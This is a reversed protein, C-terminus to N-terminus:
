DEVVRFASYVYPYDPRFWNRFSRRLFIADTRPSAGKLVYHRGDFFNASYGPYFPFPEFGPFPAFEDRCWEWGNGAMQSVGWANLPEATHVPEPDWRRFHFNGSTEHPDSDGWPYASETETAGSYGYAARHYQAESPLKLGKWGAYAAAQQYTAYIPWDLPLPIEDFMGRYLWAGNRAIWFPPAPGGDQVFRLYEGNTVKFQAIRFADVEVRHEQYENDWGFGGDRPRGLTAAGASVEMMPNRPTEGATEYQLDPPRRKRSPPLNHLLYALTEAHMLRHELAVNILVEPAEPLLSDVRERVSDNYAQIEAVSPWDGRQDKPLQGPEPDIGFEFLEDFVPHARDANLGNRCMQNWDFAELHGLYFILRHREPIPREFLAEGDLLGFLEDTRSRAQKLRERFDALQEPPIRRM